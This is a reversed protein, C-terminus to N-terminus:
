ARFVISLCLAMFLSAWEDSAAPSCTSVKVSAVRGMLDSPVFGAEGCSSGFPTRRVYYLDAQPSRNVMAFKKGVRTLTCASASGFHRFPGRLQARGFSNSGWGESGYVCPSPAVLCSVPEITRYTFIDPLGVTTM